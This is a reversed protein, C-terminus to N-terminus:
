LNLAVLEDRQNVILHRMRIQRDAIWASIPASCILAILMGEVILGGVLANVLVITILEAAIVSVLTVSAVARFHARRQPAPLTATPERPLPTRTPM